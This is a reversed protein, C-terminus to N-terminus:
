TEHSEGKENKEKEAEASNRKEQRVGADYGLRFATYLAYAIRMPDGALKRGHYLATQISSRQPASM